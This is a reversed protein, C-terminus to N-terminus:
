FAQGIAFNFRIRKLRSLVGPEFSSPCVGAGQLLEGGPGVVLPLQNGPSVCYVQGIDPNPVGNVERRTDSFYMPGPLSRRPALGLDLRVPGIPTFARVGIGPTTKFAKFVTRLDAARTNWVEGADVFAVWQLLEPYVPSRLRVEANLVVVNDGGTPQDPVLRPVAPNYRYFLQGNEQVRRIAKDDVRYVLSGLQNPLFGRVSTPGGAYLREQPPIFRQAGGIRQESFVRGARARLVLRGDGPLALYRVAEVTGRTFEVFRDSGIGPSAHRLELRILSGRSPDAADNATSKVASLGLTAARRDQQLFDITEPDCVSFLSCFYASSARTGGLELQYSLALPIRGGIQLSANAGIPTDKLFATFESRRESYLTFSPFVRRGFLPPQSYTAGVYYNLTTDGGSTLDRAVDPDCPKIRSVRGTLDVRRLGGLFNVTSLNGQARLCDYRGWGISGRAGHMEGEALDVRVTVLSDASDTLSAPDVSVDVHQYAETLQLGRKVGELNRESFVEGSDIGLTARVRQESVGIAGKVGRGKAVTVPIRGLRMRPGPVVDYWVRSVLSATDTDINQFVEAVPYGTNRLRRTLTDRMASLRGRDMRDGARLPLGRAIRVGDPVGELGNVTLSEVVVPRGEAIRFTVHVVKEGRPSVEAQVTTGRYGRQDYFYRLRVVDAVKTVTSDYCWRQGVVRLLRRLMGSPSTVIRLALQDDRYATNGVFDLRRVEPLRGDCEVQQASLPACLICGAVGLVL